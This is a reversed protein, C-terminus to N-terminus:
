RHRLSRVARYFARIRVLATPPMPANATDTPHRVQYATPPESGWRYVASVLTGGVVFVMYLFITTSHWLYGLNFRRLAEEPTWGLAAYDIAWSYLLNHDPLMAPLNPTLFIAMMASAGITTLVMGVILIAWLLFRRDREQPTIAPDRMLLLIMCAVTLVSFAVGLQLLIGMNTAVAMTAYVLAVPLSAVLVARRVPNGASRGPGYQWNWLALFVLGAVSSLVLNVLLALMFPMPTGDLSAISCFGYHDMGLAASQLLPTTLLVFLSIALFECIDFPRALRLFAGALRTGVMVGIYAIPMWRQNWGISALLYAGGVAVLGPLLWSVAVQFVTPFSGRFKTGGSQGGAGATQPQAAFVPADGDDNSAAYDIGEGDPGSRAYGGFGALSM